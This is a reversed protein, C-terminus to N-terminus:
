YETLIDLYIFRSRSCALCHWGNSHVSLFILLDVKRHRIYKIQLQISTINYTTPSYLLVIQIHIQKEYSNRNISPSAPLCNTIEDALLRYFQRNRKWELYFFIKATLRHQVECWINPNGYINVGAFKINTALRIQQHCAKSTPDFDRLIYVFHVVYFPPRTESLAHSSLTVVRWVSRVHNRRSILRHRHSFHSVM